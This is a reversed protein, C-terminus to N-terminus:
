TLQHRRTTTTIAYTEMLSTARRRPEVGPGTVYGFSYVVFGFGFGFIYVFTQVRLDRFVSICAWCFFIVCCHFV